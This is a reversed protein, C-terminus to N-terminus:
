LLKAVIKLAINSNAAMVWTRQIVMDHGLTSELMHNLLAHIPNCENQSIAKKESGSTPRQDETIPPVTPGGGM